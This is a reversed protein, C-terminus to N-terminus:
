SQRLNNSVVRWDSHQIEKYEIVYYLIPCGGTPWHYLHLVISSSNETLLREKSAVKPSQNRHNRHIQPSPPVPNVEELQLVFPYLKHLIPIGHQFYWTKDIVLANYFNLIWNTYNCSYFFQKQLVLVMFTTLSFMEMALTQFNLFSFCIHWSISHIFPDVLWTQLTLRYIMM